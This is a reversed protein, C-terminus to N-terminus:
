LQICCFYFTKGNIDHNRQVNVTRGGCLTIYVCVIYVAGLSELFKVTRIHLTNIERNGFTHNGNM